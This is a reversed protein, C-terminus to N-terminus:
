SQPAAALTELVWTYEREISTLMDLKMDPPLVDWTYTEIELHRCEAYGDLANLFDTIDTQTSQFAQYRDIFIPVHFHTRWEKATSELFHPLAQRLDRHRTLQSDASQEIVQHLYTSEALPELQAAMWKRNELDEPPEIKLASSLQGKGIKIGAAQFQEIVTQPQEYEVAFHCTDYCVQIHDLLHQEAQASSINLKNVLWAGGVPLLWDKFYTIVETANELLGDPEPELDIHILQGKNTNLEILLATLEALQQSARLFVDDCAAHNATWWPKYSLPVTSIGGEIEPPLLASLINTLRLTYDLREPKSWDPAYVQDKVVQNHFGGYPFGNMTFVYLDEKALWHKFNNLAEPNLLERSALDSLRLGIGFADKPSLRNKLAPLYTQLNKQVQSWTEGPHINSCYTLHLHQNLKM